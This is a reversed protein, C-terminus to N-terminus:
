VPLFSKKIDGNHIFTIANNVSGNEKTFYDKVMTKSM